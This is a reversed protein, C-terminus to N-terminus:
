TTMRIDRWETGDLPNLAFQEFGKGAVDGITGNSKQRHEDIIAFDRRCEGVTRAETDPAITPM